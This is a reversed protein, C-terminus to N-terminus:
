FAEARLRMTVDSGAGISVLCREINPLLHQVYFHATVIKADWFNKTHTADPQQIRQHAIHAAHLWAFGLAVYGFLQLYAYSASGALNADNPMQQQLFHTATRLKQVGDRVAHRLSALSTSEPQAAMSKELSQIFVELTRGDLAPLKRALLDLAQIGNAGAYLQTVRVDRALQEMGSERIYGHGGMVQMGLNVTETCIDTVFAKVMPTLLQLLNRAEARREEQPCRRSVDMFHATWLLLARGGETYAKMTLLMRRVDPHVIIPDAPLQANGAGGAARGQLRERAYSRAKQFAHEALGVSQTAITLREREM